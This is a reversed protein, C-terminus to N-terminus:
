YALKESNAQGEQSTSRSALVEEEKLSGESGGKAEAFDGDVDAFDVVLNSNSLNQSRMKHKPYGNFELNRDKDDRRRKCLEIGNLSNVSCEGVTLSENEGHKYIIHVGCSKFMVAAEENSDFIFRLNDGTPYRLWQEICEPFSYNLYVHNWDGLLELNAEVLMNGNISVRIGSPSDDTNSGLVACFVIGIIEDLYFPGSIDLECSDRKSPEKTHSFWYPIKNGPFIIGCSHDQIHEEVFSPNPAQSGINAVLKHCGSLDIWRLERLVCSTYFQFKTSVEPFRELSFCESAYLEQINPPLCLIEQLKECHWLKLIRLEFYSEINVPLSVIDCWSLDLEQLTSTCCFSFDDLYWNYVPMPLLEASSQPESRKIMRSTILHFHKPRTQYRISLSIEEKALNTYKDLSFSKPHQSHPVSIPFHMLDMGGEISLCEIGTLCGVCFSHCLVTLNQLQHISSPLHMLKTYQGPLFLEKLAPTLYGISSPLEKIASGWLSIFCLYEMKCEIEPFNQLKSCGHLALVQLSRLKLHRPFSKLNSCYYLRLRVLKDLFGVSDHVKVLNECGLIDLEQLNSCSSLNSIKTLFKCESFKMITLNKFQGSIDKIRGGYLQFDILKEGRFNSPLSQLPCNSWDLVRLENSLYDISRGSFREGHSIFFRLRKMKAFSKPNLCIMDHDDGEPLVVKIGEVNNTGANEELVYRVDEHFWLRSRSGPEKRSENRVIEKGMDQLLDHMWLTNHITITILCKDILRKIGNDPSFGCSDLIKVVYDMHQGKFFFAIDLFIEKENDDLGDYSICLVEQINKSPIRKYKDLVSRWQNISQGRLDSGLVILALPLGEAYSIVQKSLEVYDEIPKDEEFAHWSFLELAENHDLRKVEYKSDVKHTNLLNQDRTTIIIRSGLGFWDRDGALTELQVLKDVDDLILLVRRSCLKRKLEYVGRDVNGVDFCKSAKLIENLLTNQLQVLGGVQNSTERVNKLFCHVDFQSFISNYIKKAITTKGIGGVGFIGVMRIDNMGICLLLDIEQVRSEMGVLYKAVNLYSYNVIRSVEQVIEQIFKSENGNELEYGALNAVEQLAAKWRQVKKVDENFKGVCVALAEGFSGRQNRVDSPNVHYFIPLVIQQKTEKCNLINLLEDLCWTSSAYNESLVVISLRSNEIAQLLAPSIEDGRRLEDEDIYTHIGNQLLAHHLHAIFTNRTDEGRFSLFVDYFWPSSVTSSSSSSLGLFSMSSTM